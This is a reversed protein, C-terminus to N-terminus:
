RLVEDTHAKSISKALHREQGVTEALLLNLM